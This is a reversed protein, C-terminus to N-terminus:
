EDEQLAKFVADMGVEVDESGRFVCVDVIDDEDVAIEIRKGIMTAHLMVGFPSSRRIFFHIQRSELLKMLEFLKSSM